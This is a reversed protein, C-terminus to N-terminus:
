AIGGRRTAPSPPPKRKRGLHVVLVRLPWGIAVGLAAGALLDTPYHVGAVSRSLAIVLALGWAWTRDLVMAMAFANAAHCSPMSFGPGCGFPALIGAVALCPRPREILPKLVHACLTDSAIVALVVGLVEWWRKRRAVDFLVAVLLLLPSWPQDILWCVQKVGPLHVLGNLFILLSRDV